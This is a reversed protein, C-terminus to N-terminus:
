ARAPLGLAREIADESLAGMRLLRPPRVTVDVVTSEVGGPCDGDIVYDVRTGLLRRVESASTLSGHGSPNASTGVLPAGLGSSLSRPVEHGPIRVAVTPGTSVQFDSRM